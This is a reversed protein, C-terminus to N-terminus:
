IKFIQLLNRTNQQLIEDLPENRLAAVARGVDILTAPRNLASRDVAQDPADTELVLDKLDISVVTRKLNEFGKRLVGTGVSIKLGLDIYARAQGLTGSFSHVIGGFDPTFEQNGVMLEISKAHAKVIHLVIPKQM